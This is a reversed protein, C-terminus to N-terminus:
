RRLVVVDDPGLRPDVRFSSVEAVTTSATVSAALLHGAARSLQQYAAQAAAAEPSTADLGLAGLRDIVAGAALLDEVAFRLEGGARYEGAGVVAITIRRALRQQLAVLWAAVAGATALSCEVLAVETPLNGLPPGTEASRIADVWVIADADAGIAHAGAAGWDFRVQYRAQEINM